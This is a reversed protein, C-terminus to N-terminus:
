VGPALLFVQTGPGVTTAQQSPSECRARSEWVRGSGARMVQRQRKELSWPVSEQPARRQHAVREVRRPARAFHEWAERGGEVAAPPLCSISSHNPDSDSLLDLVTGLSM